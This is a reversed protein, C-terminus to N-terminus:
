DRDKKNAKSNSSNGQSESSNKPKSPPAHTERSQHYGKPEYNHPNGGRPERSEAPVNRPAREVATSQPPTAPLDRAPITPATSPVVRTTAQSPPPSDAIAARKNQEQPVQRQPKSPPTGAPASNPRPASQSPVPTPSIQSPKSEKEVRPEPQRTRTTTTTSTGPQQGSSPSPAREVQRPSPNSVERQGRVVNNGAPTTRFDGRSQSVVPVSPTHRIVPHRNDIKQVEVRTTKAPEKLVPRYVVSEKETSRSVINVRGSGAPVDRVTAHQVPTRAVSSVREVPIGRNVITTNNVTYNNVITTNKYIKTVETTPLRHHRIDRDNFDHLGVFTFHNPRLGFDFDARVRVGNFTWGVRVDFTAHPPLPAWGCRDGGSRWVVWSPAWVTDPTWVWGCRPHNYWRGYHFPAWGWSYDSRWFWGAETYVWHGSDCYPQWGRNVVVVTPQWCWGVGEMDVWSGYPSLSSYFYNVQPPPSSVETPASPTLPAEVPVSPPAPPPTSPQAQPPQNRLGADRNLMASIVPSSVGIDRLYLIQDSTLEFGGTSNQVYALVVDEGVGSQALRIVEGVPPSVAVPALTEGPVDPSLNEPAGVNEPGPVPQAYVRMFLLATWAM